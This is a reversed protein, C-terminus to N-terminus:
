DLHHAVSNPFFRNAFDVMEDGRVLDHVTLQSTHEHGTAGLLEKVANVTNKRFNYVRECKDTVVFGKELHKDQTAVGTPCANTNCRLALMCGLGFMLGRASNCIDAGLALNTVIAF